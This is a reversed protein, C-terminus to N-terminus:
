FAFGTGVGNACSGAALIPGNIFEDSIIVPSQRPLRFIGRIRISNHNLFELKLVEVDRKDYVTLTSFDPRERRALPHVWLKDDTIRAIIDGDEDFL